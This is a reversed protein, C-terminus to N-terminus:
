VRGHSTGMKACKGEEEGNARLRRKRATRFSYPFKPSLPLHPLLALSSMHCACIVLLPPAPFPLPLLPQLPASCPWVHVASTSPGAPARQARLAASSDATCSPRPSADFRVPLGFHGVRRFTPIRQLHQLMRTLAAPGLKEDSDGPDEEDNDVASAEHLELCCRKQASCSLACHFSGHSHCQV